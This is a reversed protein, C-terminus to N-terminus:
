QVDVESGKIVVKGSAEIKIDAASLLSIGDSNLKFENGNADVIEIMGEDSNLTISNGDETAMLISKTEDDFAIKLGTKTFIGKHFNDANIQGSEVPPVQASSYVSGMIVPHRPDNNIFSLVVEDDLEPRFFVGRGSGADPSMVRAWVPEAEEGLALIKVKVRFEGEPDDEIDVVKGLQLGHIPPLMGGAPLSNVDPTMLFDQDKRGMQIDTVWGMSPDLRHRVGSILMKGNFHSSLGDLQLVEGPRIAGNGPISISGRILSNRNKRMKGNAWAALEETLLAVSSFLKLEPSGVVEAMSAPTLDGPNPNFATGANESPSAQDAQNWAHTAISSYQKEADVEFHFNYIEDIGYGLEYQASSTDIDEPNLVDITGDKVIVWLGHMDARALMFDWDSCAYQIIEPHTIETTAIDGATLGNDSILQNFLDSDTIEQFVAQKRPLTMKIAKDKLLLSIKGGQQSAEISHKTILGKFAVFETNPIGERRLKIEVEKGPLLQPGESLLFDRSSPNGDLMVLEATAIKGVERYIDVRVIVVSQDLTTGDVSIIVTFVSM